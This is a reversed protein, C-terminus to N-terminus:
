SIDHTASSAHNEIIQSYWSLYNDAQRNLDFRLRAEKAATFRMSKRLNEDLLLLDISAAMAESDGQLVLFGTKGDRIQEPIGGVSTAIVPTGCAQSELLTNPFNDSHAAHLFIDAAQYYRAVKVPDSQYPIHRVMVDGYKEEGEQGGLSIFLCNQHQLSIHHLAQQITQYDKFPNKKAQNAIFLLVITQAPIGLFDRVKSVETPHFVTLDIGYPIIKTELPRLISRKVRDMLWQSPTAIYLRSRNYIDRKRRWNWATGDRPVEPYIPLDPCKGCGSEWRPCAISYACHGTLLWEDHLTIIVPFQSSLSPLLCLDFYYGHLNHFHLIDPKDPCLRLLYHSGPYNFNERGSFYEIKPLVGGFTKLWHRFHKVRMRWIENPSEQNFWASKLWPNYPRIRPIFLVDPDDSKKNGVSLWSRYGRARFTVFLEWAIKEAGGAIDSTSVQLINM